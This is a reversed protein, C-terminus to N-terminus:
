HPSIARRKAERASREDAAEKETRFASLCSSVLLPLGGRCLSYRVERLVFKKGHPVIFFKSM